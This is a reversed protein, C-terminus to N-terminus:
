FFFNGLWFDSSGTDFNVKFKQPPTGLKITGYYQIDYLYDVVPVSGAKLASINGTSNGRNSNFPHTSYKANARLVARKANPKYHSNKELAFAFNDHHSPAADVTLSILFISIFTFTFKM